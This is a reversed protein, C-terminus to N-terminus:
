PWRYGSSCGAQILLHLCEAHSGDLALAAQCDALAEDSRRLALQSSSRRCLFTGHLGPCTCMATSRLAETCAGICEEHHGAGVM